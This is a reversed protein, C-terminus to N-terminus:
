NFLNRKENQIRREEEERAVKMTLEYLEPNKTKAENMLTENKSIYCLTDKLTQRMTNNKKPPQNLIQKILKLSKNQTM